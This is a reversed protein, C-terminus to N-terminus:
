NSRQSVPQRKSETTRGTVLIMAVTRYLFHAFKTYPYYLIIIWVMVLHFFYLLYAISWEHFRAGEVLMGSISLLWFSILFFWDAYTNTQEKRNRFRNLIMLSTGGILMFAGTNGAMKIPNTIGLPYEFFITSLIAFFTVILLLIFGWFVLFHSFRRSRNEDCSGFERHRMIRGIVKIFTFKKSETEDQDLSGKTASASEPLNEPGESGASAASTGSGASTAASRYIKVNRIFKRLGVVAATTSLIFLATFSGNLWGHPFFRSYDVTGEPLSFAWKLSFLGRLSFVGNPSFLGSQSFTGALSLILIIVLAPFLLLAPLFEPRHMRHSLFGPKSYFSVQERRLASMVDGPKVRRPCTLSCDGCQHCTWIYPDAMLRDHMGWAAMIMQRRPFTDQDASLSCSATCAGCQMCTKLQSGTSEQLREIFKIDPSVQLM